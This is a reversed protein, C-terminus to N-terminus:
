TKFKKLDELVMESVLQEFSTKPEWGLKIKAKKANGILDDVETPRFYKKDVRVICNGNADIAKENVGKGIWKIKIKLEKATANVFDKVSKKVGTAIVYDEPKEQQLMLWTAEVYDRAHGWDRNANLNRFLSM